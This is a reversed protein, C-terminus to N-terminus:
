GDRGPDITPRGARACACGLVLVGWLVRPAGPILEVADAGLLAAPASDSEADLAGVMHDLDGLATDLGPAADSRLAADLDFPISRRRAQQRVAARVENLLPTFVPEVLTQPEVPSPETGLARLTASSGLRASPGAVARVLRPQARVLLLVAVTHQRPPRPPRTILATFVGEMAEFGNM